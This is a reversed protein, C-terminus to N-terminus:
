EIKSEGGHSPSHSLPSRKRRLCLCWVTKNQKKFLGLEELWNPVCQFVYYQGGFWAFHLLKLIM